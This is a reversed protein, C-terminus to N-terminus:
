IRSIIFATILVVGFLIHLFYAINSIKRLWGYQPFAAAIEDPPNPNKLVYHVFGYRCMTLDFLFYLDSIFGTRDLLHPRDRFFGLLESLASQAYIAAILFALGAISIVYIM